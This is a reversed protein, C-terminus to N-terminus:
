VFSKRGPDEGTRLPLLPHLKRRERRKMKMTMTMTMTM